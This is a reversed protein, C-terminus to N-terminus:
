NVGYILITGGSISNAGSVAFVISTIASTSGYGGGMTSGRTVGGTTVIASGQIPKWGVTAAYNTITCSFSHNGTGTDIAANYINFPQASTNTTTGATTGSSGCANGNNPNIQIQSNASSPNFGYAHIFLNKYTQNIGSVTVTSGSVNVFSTTSLLTMGGSSPTAWKLGTATTSDATLVQNNTGVGLREETTSYTFLDGKTTLPDAAVWAPVGASIGLVQGTTGIGLRTNTNATASRYEIDGLTTSPNLAKLQTDVAQGFVEFDAPLDKVLDSNTPMAFNYNTTPNAM